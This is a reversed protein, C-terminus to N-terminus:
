EFDRKIQKLWHAFVVDHVEYGDGHYVLSKKVLAKLATQVTSPSKLDYKKIFDSSLPQHVVDESAIAMLLKWQTTTVLQNIQSFVAQEEALIRQLSTRVEDIEM